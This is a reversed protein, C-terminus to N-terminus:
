QGINMSMGLSLFVNEHVKSIATIKFVIHNNEMVNEHFISFVVTKVSILILKVSTLFKFFFPTWFHCHNKSGDQINSSWSIQFRYARYKQLKITIFIIIKANSNFICQIFVCISFNSLTMNSGQGVGM